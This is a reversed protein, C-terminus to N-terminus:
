RGRLLDSLLMPAYNTREVCMNVHKDGTGLALPLPNDHLHGHLNIQRFGLSHENLPYHSVFIPRGEFNFELYPAVEDVELPLITAGLCDHNGLVLIKHGPIARLIVNASQLDHMAIDGGFIIIDDQQVRAICNGLLSRNMDDVSNFPRDCFRIINKHSFHQDSWFWVNATFDASGGLCVSLDFKPRYSHHLSRLITIFDKPARERFKGDASLFPIELDELYREATPTPRYAGQDTTLNKWGGPM